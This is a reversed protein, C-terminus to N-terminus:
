NFSKRFIKIEGIEYFESDERTKIENIYQRLFLISENKSMKSYNINGEGNWWSIIWEANLDCNIHVIPHSSSALQTLCLLEMLGQELILCSGQKKVEFVVFIEDKNQNHASKFLELKDVKIEKKNKKQQHILVYDCGGRVIINSKGISDTNLFNHHGSVNGVYQQNSPEIGLLYHFYNSIYVTNEFYFETNDWNFDNINLNINHIQFDKSSVEEITINNSNLILGFVLDSVNRITTKKPILLKLISKIEDIQSQLSSFVERVYEKIEALSLDVYEKIETLSLNVYEKIEALSLDVYEKSCLEKSDTENNINIADEGSSGCIENNLTLEEAFGAGFSDM